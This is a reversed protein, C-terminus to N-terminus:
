EEGKKLERIAGVAVQVVAKTVAENDGNIAVRGWKSELKLASNTPGVNLTFDFLQESKTQHKTAM